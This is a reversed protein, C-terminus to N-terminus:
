RAICVAAGDAVACYYGNPCDSQQTCGDPYICAVEAGRFVGFGVRPPACQERVLGCVGGPEATCDAGAKCAAPLCLRQPASTLQTTGAVGPPMCASGASCDADTTCEDSLCVNRFDFGGASCQTTAAVSLSYCAGTPCPHAADCENRASTGADEALGTPEVSCAMFGDSIAVCEGFSCDGASRCGLSPTGAVSTVSADPEPLSASPGADHMREPTSSEGGCASILAWMALAGSGGKALSSAM